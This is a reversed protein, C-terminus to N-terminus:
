KIDKTLGLEENFGKIILWFGLFIEFLATPVNLVLYQITIVSIMKFLLLLSAIISLITGSIGWFSLWKPILRTKLFLTYLMINGIGITFVMFIHNTYDRTIKLMSGLTEFVIINESTNHVFSQSLKLISLLIITGIILIVGAIIRFSLFGLALRENRKIIPYLVIAFGLYTLSLIFQFLASVIVQTSNLAAETLYNASDIAPSVSFIGAVMGIIILLGALRIKSKFIGM